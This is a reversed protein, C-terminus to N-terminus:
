VLCKLIKNQFAPAIDTQHTLNVKRADSHDKHQHARAPTLREHRCSGLCPVILVILSYVAFVTM